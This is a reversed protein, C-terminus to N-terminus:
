QADDAVEAFEGGKLTYWTDAKLKEGDIIAAKIALLPYTKGDWEGRECVCIASGVAGKAKSKYGTVIAVGGMGTNTAASMYGTNTAASRDGTNTAVSMYGTNSEKKRSDLHENIYEVSAQVMNAISLKAGIRIRKGVRKSDDGTKETADLEVEHYESDAPSYYGFCDLPYECAHFGSRCLEASDTEYTEGEQFQFGRCKVGKDFGKYAKM